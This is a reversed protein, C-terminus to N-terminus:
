NYIGKEGGWKGRSKQIKILVSSVILFLGVFGMGLKGFHIAGGELYIGNWGWWLLLFGLSVFIVLLPRYSLEALFELLSMGEGIEEEEKGM